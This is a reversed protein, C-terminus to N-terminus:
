DKTACIVFTYLLGASTTTFDADIRPSSGAGSSICMLHTADTWTVATGGDANSAASTGLTGSLTFATPDKTGGDAGYGASTTYVIVSNDQITDDVTWGTPASAQKFFLKTGSPFFPQWTGDERLFSTGTASIAAGINLTSGGALEILYTTSGAGAEAISESVSKYWNTGNWAWVSMDAENVVEAGVDISFTTSLGSTIPDSSYSNRHTRTIKWKSNTADAAYINGTDSEIMMTGDPILYTTFSPRDSSTYINWNALRWKSSSAEWNYRNGSDAMIAAQGDVSGADLSAESSYIAHSYATDIAPHTHTTPAKGDVLSHLYVFNGQAKTYLAPGFYDSTTIEYLPDSM